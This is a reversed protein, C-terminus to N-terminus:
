AGRNYQDDGHELRREAFERELEEYVADFAPDCGASMDEILRTLECSSTNSTDVYQM